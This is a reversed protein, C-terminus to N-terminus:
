ITKAKPGGSAARMMPICPRRRLCPKGAQNGPGNGPLQALHYSGQWM